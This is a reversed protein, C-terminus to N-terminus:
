LTWRAREGTGARMVRDNGAVNLLTRTKGKMAKFEAAALAAEFAVRAAPSLGQSRPKSEGTPVVLWGSGPLSTWCCARM